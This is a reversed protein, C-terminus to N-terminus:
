TRIALQLHMRLMFQVQDFTHSMVFIQFYLISLPWSSSPPCLGNDVWYGM